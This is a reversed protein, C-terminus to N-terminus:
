GAVQTPRLCKKACQADINDENTFAAGSAYYDPDSSFVTLVALLTLATRPLPDSGPDATWAGM